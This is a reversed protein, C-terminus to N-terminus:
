PSPLMGLPAAESAPPLWAGRERRAFATLDTPPRGTVELVDGTLGAARGARAVTHIGATVAVMAWPMGARRAHRVYRAPGPSPDLLAATAVAAVDDTDVFATTRDRPAPVM